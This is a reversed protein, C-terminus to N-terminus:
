MGFICLRTIIPYNGNVKPNSNFNWNADGDWMTNKIKLRYYL